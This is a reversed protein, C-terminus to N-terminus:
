PRAGGRRAELTANPAGDAAESGGITVTAATRVRIVNLHRSAENTLKRIFGLWGSHDQEWVHALYLVHSARRVSQDLRECFSGGEGAAAVSLIRRDQACASELVRLRVAERFSSGFVLLLSRPEAPQSEPFALLEQAVRLVTAVLEPEHDQGLFDARLDDGAPEPRGTPAVIAFREGATGHLEPTAPRFGPKPKPRAKLYDDRLKKFPLMNTEDDPGFRLYRHTPMIASGSIRIEPDNPSGDFGKGVIVQIQKHDYSFDAWIALFATFRNLIATDRRFLRPERTHLWVTANSRLKDNVDRLLDPPVLGPLTKNYEAYVDINKDDWVKEEIALLAEKVKDLGPYEVVLSVLATHEERAFAAMAFDVLGGDGNGSIFLVPKPGPPLPGTLSSKTWYTHNYGSLEKEYGFGIAIIIADYNTPEIRGALELKGGRPEGLPQIATVRERKPRDRGFLRKFKTIIVNAVQGAEGAQWNLIPLGADRKRSSEDPWDYLHPHLYRDSNKQLHLLDADPEYLDVQLDPLARVFAAAATVGAVGGGVIAVRGHPRVKKSSIMADVLNLARRQQSLVTVRSEFCGVFFISEGPVQSEELVRGQNANM